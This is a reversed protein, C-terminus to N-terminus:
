HQIEFTTWWASRRKRGWLLGGLPLFTQLYANVTKSTALLNLAASGKVEFLEESTEFARWVIKLRPCNLHSFTRINSGPRSNTPSTVLSIVFCSTLILLPSTFTWQSWPITSHNLRVKPSRRKVKWYLWSIFEMSPFLDVSYTFLSGSTTNAKFISTVLNVLFFGISTM